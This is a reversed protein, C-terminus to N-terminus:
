TVESDAETSVVDQLGGAARLSATSCGTAFSIAELLNSKGTHTATPLGNALRHKCPAPPPRLPPKGCGNPGTIGTLHPTSFKFCAWEKGFSKFARVRLEALFFHKGNTAAAASAKMAM